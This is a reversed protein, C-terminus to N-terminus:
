ESSSLGFCVKIGSKFITVATSTRIFSNMLKNAELLYAVLPRFLWLNAYLVRYPFTSYPALSEIMDREPGRGFQNEHAYANLKSVARAMKVIATEPPPVSAHGVVGETSLRINVLGKEAVGIMAVDRKVGPLTKRYIYPGEDLIFEVNQWGRAKMYRAMEAAGDLGRGEEDHGLAIFFSREITSDTALLYELSEM